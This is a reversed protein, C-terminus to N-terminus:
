RGSNGHWYKCDRPFVALFPILMSFSSWISTTQAPRATKPSCVRMGEKEFTPDMGGTSLIFILEQGTCSCCKGWSWLGTDYLLLLQLCDDRYGANHIGLWDVYCSNLFNAIVPTSRTPVKNSAYREFFNVFANCNFFFDSAHSTFLLCLLPLSMMECIRLDTEWMCFQLTELNRENESNKWQSTCIFVYVYVTPLLCVSPLSQEATTLGWLWWLTLHWDSCGLM